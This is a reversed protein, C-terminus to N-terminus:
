TDLYVNSVTVKNVPDVTWQNNKWALVDNGYAATLSWYASLPCELSLNSFLNGQYVDEFTLANYPYPQSACWAIAFLPRAKERAYGLPPAGLLFVLSMARLIRNM